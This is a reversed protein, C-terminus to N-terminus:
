LLIVQFPSAHNTQYLTQFLLQAWRPPGPLGHGQVWKTRGKTMGLSFGQERLDEKGQKRLRLHHKSCLKLIQLKQLFTFRKEQILHCQHTLVPWPGLEWEAPTERGRRLHFYHSPFDRLKPCLCPFWKGIAVMPLVSKVQFLYSLRKDTIISGPFWFCLCLSFMEWEWEWKKGLEERRLTTPGECCLPSGQTRPKLGEPVATGLPPRGDREM